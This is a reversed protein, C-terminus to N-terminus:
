QKSGHTTRAFTPWASLSVQEHRWARDANLLPGGIIVVTAVAAILALTALLARTM